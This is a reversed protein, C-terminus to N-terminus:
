ICLRHVELHFVGLLINLASSRIVEDACRCRISMEEIGSIVCDLVDLFKDLSVVGIRFIWSGLIM